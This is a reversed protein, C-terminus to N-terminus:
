DNIGGYIKKLNEDTENKKITKMKQLISDKLEAFKKYELEKRNMEAESNGGSTSISKALDDAKETCFRHLDALSQMAGLRIWWAPESSAIGALSAVGITITEPKCRELYKGYISIMEYKNYDASTALADIFFSNQEDNGVEAYVSAIIAAVRPNRVMEFRRLWVLGTEHDHEVFNAIAVSM